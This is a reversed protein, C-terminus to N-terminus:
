KSSCKSSLGAPYTPKRTSSNRRRTGPADHTGHTRTGLDDHTGHTRTGLDDRTTLDNRSRSM